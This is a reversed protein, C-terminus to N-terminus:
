GPFSTLDVTLVVSTIVQDPTTTAAFLQTGAGAELALPDGLGDVTRSISGIPTAGNFFTATINLIEFAEPQAELGFTHVPQSLTFTITPAGNGDLVRPTASETQPPSGWTPYTGPNLVGPVVTLAAM